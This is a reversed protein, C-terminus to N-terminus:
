NTSRLRFFASSNTLLISITNNVQPLAVSSWSANVGLPGASSEL